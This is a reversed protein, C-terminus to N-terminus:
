PVPALMRAPVISVTGTQSNDPLQELVTYILISGHSCSLSHSGSYTINVPTGGNLTLNSSSAEWGIPYPGDVGVTWNTCHYHYDETDRDVLVGSIANVGNSVWEVDPRNSVGEMWQLQLKSDLSVLVNSLIATPLFQKNEASMTANTVPLVTWGKAPFSSSELPDPEGYYFFGEFINDPYGLHWYYQVPHVFRPTWGWTESNDVSNSNNCYARAPCANTGILRLAAAVLNALTICDGRHCIKIQYIDPTDLQTFPNAFYNFNTDGEPPPGPNGNVTQAVKMALDDGTNEGASNTTAWDMRKATPVLASWTFSGSVDSCYNSQPRDNVVFVQQTTAQLTQWVAGNDFSISWVMAYKFNNVVSGVTKSNTATIEPLSVNSSTLEIEVPGFTLSDLSGAEGLPDAEVKLKADVTNTGMNPEITLKGQVIKPVAEKVFCVPDPPNVEPMGDLNLDQWVPNTIATDGDSIYFDNTYTDGGTKKLAIWKNTDTCDFGVQLLDVKLVYVTNTVSAQNTATVKGDTSIIKVTNTVVFVGATNWTVTLHDASITWDVGNAGPSITMEVNTATTALILSVM